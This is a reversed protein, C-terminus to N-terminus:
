VAGIGRIMGSGLYKEIVELTTPQTTTVHTAKFQLGHERDTIWWGTASIFEGANIVAAHGVVAVLDRQGRAKVRLVCFGNEPSHYTVREPCHRQRHRRGAGPRRNWSLPEKGSLPRSYPQQGAGEVNASSPPDGARSGDLSRNFASASTWRSTRCDVPCDIPWRRLQCKLDSGDPPAAM